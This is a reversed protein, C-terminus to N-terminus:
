SWEWNDLDAEGGAEFGIGLDPPGQQFKASAQWADEFGLGLAQAHVAGGSVSAVNSSFTSDLIGLGADGRDGFEIAELGEVFVAGGLGGGGM